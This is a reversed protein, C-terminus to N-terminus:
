HRTLLLSFLLFHILFLTLCTVDSDDDSSSLKGDNDTRLDDRSIWSATSLHNASISLQDCTSPLSLLNFDFRPPPTSTKTELFTAHGRSLTSPPISCLPECIVLEGESLKYLIKGSIHNILCIILCPLVHHPVEMIKHLIGSIKRPTTCFSSMSHEEALHLPPCCRPGVCISDVPDSMCMRLFVSM